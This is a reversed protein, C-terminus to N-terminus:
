PRFVTVDRTRPCRRRQRLPLTTPVRGMPQALEINIAHACAFTRRLVHPTIVFSPALEPSLRERALETLKALRSAVPKPTAHISRDEIYEYTGRAGHAQRALRQFFMWDRAGIGYRQTHGHWLRVYESDVPIYRHKGDGRGKGNRITLTEEQANLDNARLKVLEASRVGTFFLTAIAFRDYDDFEPGRLLEALPPVQEPRLWDRRAESAATRSCATLLTAEGWGSAIIFTLLQRLSSMGRKRTSAAMWQPHRADFWLRLDQATVRRVPLQALQTQLLSPGSSRKGTVRQGPGVLVTRHDKLNKRGSAQCQLLFADVAERLTINRDGAPNPTSPTDNINTTPTM